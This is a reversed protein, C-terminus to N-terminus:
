LHSYIFSLYTRYVNNYWKLPFSLSFFEEFAIKQLCFFKFKMEFIKKTLSIEPAEDNKDWNWNWQFLINNYIKIICKSIWKKRM